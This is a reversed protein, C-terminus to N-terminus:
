RLRVTRDRLRDFRAALPLLIRNLPGVSFLVPHPHSLVVSEDVSVREGLAELESATLRARLSPFLRTEVAQAHADMLDMLETVLAPMDPSNTKRRDIHVLLREVDHFDEQLRDVVEHDPGLRHKVAPYLVNKEVAVHATTRQIIGRMVERHDSGPQSVDEFLARIEAHDRELLDVVDIAMGTGKGMASGWGAGPRTM